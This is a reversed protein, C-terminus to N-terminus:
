RWPTFWTGRTPLTDGAAVALETAESAQVRQREATCLGIAIAALVLNVAQEGVLEANYSLTAAAASAVSVAFWSM